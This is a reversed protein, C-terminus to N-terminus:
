PISYIDAGNKLTMSYKLKGNVAGSAILTVNKKEYSLIRVETNQENFVVHSSLLENPVPHTM